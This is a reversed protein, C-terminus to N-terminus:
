APTKWKDGGSADFTDWVLKVTGKSYHFHQIDQVAGVAGLWTLGTATLQEVVRRDLDLFGKSRDRMSAGSMQFDPGVAAFDAAIRGRWQDITRAPVNLGAQDLATVAAALAAGDDKLTFYAVLDASARSLLDYAGPATQTSPQRTIPNSALPVRRVLLGANAAANWTASTIWPNTEYNIDVALGYSHLGGPPSRFGRLKDNLHIGFSEASGMRLLATEAATLRNQLEPHLGRGDGTTNGLFSAAVFGGYWQAPTVGM